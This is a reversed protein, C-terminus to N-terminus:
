SAKLKHILDNAEETMRVSIQFNQNAKNIIPLLELIEISIPLNYEYIMYEGSKFFRHINYEDEEYNYGNHHRSIITTGKRHGWYLKLKLKNNKLKASNIKPSSFQITTKM